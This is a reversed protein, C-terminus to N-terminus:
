SQVNRNEINWPRIAVRDLLLYTLKVFDLFLLCREQQLASIPTVAYV